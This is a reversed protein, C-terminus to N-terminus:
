FQVTRMEVDAQCIIGWGDPGYRDHFSEFHSIYDDCHQPTVAKMILLIVRLVLFCAKWVKFSPPPM